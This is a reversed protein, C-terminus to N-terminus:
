SAYSFHDLAVASSGNRDTGYYVGSIAKSNIELRLFGYHKDDAARLTLGQVNPVAWPLVLPVGNQKAMGHLNHYGGSGIVLYPITVGNVVREFSQYNHVHGSLVMNPWRSKAFAADLLDGMRQSGGHHADASFPPHHLAVIVPRDTPAAELEGVLWAIQDPNIEGGSPVNSYLGIITVLAARLTWYVNPQTMADRHADDADPTPVPQSACFNEVFADLSPVSPNDGNDGDHNGPIALIPRAYPDYAEYFQPFYSGHDGNFYVVDGVHFIFDSGNAALDAVLAAVVAKQPMADFIGGSDGIVHFALTDLPDTGVESLELRYPPAGPPQPLPAFTEHPLVEVVRQVM